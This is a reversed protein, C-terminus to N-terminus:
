SCALAHEVYPRFNRAFVILALNEDSYVRVDFFVPLFAQAVLRFNRDRYPSQDGLAGRVSGYQRIERM